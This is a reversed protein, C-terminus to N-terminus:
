KLKEKEFNKYVILDITDKTMYKELVEFAGSNLFTRALTSSTRYHEYEPRLYIVQANTMDRIVTEFQEEHYFDPGNRIGRIVVQAEVQNVYDHTWGEWARVTILKEAHDIEHALANMIILCRQEIDFM